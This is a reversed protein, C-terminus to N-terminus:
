FFSLYWRALSEGWFLSVACGAALFPGFPMYHADGPKSKKLIVIGAAAGAWIAALLAIVTRSVGLFLGAALMLKVDGFGMGEKKFLIRGAIDTLLLSGGGILAGFLADKWPVIAFIRGAAGEPANRLAAAGDGLFPILPMFLSVAALILLVVHFRDPIIQHDWDIFAVMILVSLFILASALQWSMGFVAFSLLFLGATLLEVLPYRASVPAKCYRCKRKLLLWGLVPIMDLWSLRHGCAACHSPPFLVSQGAPIRYICVNYFSGMVLGALFIFVGQIMALTM